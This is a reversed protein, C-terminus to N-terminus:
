YKEFLLAANVGGFGSLTKLFYKKDTHTITKTINLSFPQNDVVLQEPNNCNLTPLVIGRGLAEVSVITELVGAAGLTHGFLSKLPFL